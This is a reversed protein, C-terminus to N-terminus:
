RCHEAFDGRARRVFAGGVQDHRGRGRPCRQGGLRADNRGVPCPAISSPPCFAAKGERSALSCAHVASLHPTRCPHHDPQKRDITQDRARAHARCASQEHTTRRHWGEVTSVAVCNRRISPAFPVSDACIEPAGQGTATAEGVPTSVSLAGGSSGLVVTIRSGTKEKDIRARSRAPPDAAATEGGGISASFPM